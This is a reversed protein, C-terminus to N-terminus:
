FKFVLAGAARGFDLKTDGLEFGLVELDQFAHFYRIDGRIGVHDGFFIMLGGGINWGFHNDDSDLISSPELEVRTKILGLGVLFYPRTVQLNPAVMISSMVTLVSSSYGPSEGFFDQAYAFEQEFGFVNGMAGLAIGFNLKKDECDDIDPCGSDGGFDYGLLPSIYGQARADAAGAFTALVVVLGVTFWRRTSASM